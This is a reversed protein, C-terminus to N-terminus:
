LDELQKKYRQAEKFLELRKKAQIERRAKKETTAILKKLRNKQGELDIQEKLTSGEEVQISSVQSVLNEWILKLNLGTINIDIQNEKQWDNVLLKTKYIALRFEDEYALVILLKQGFLKFILIINSDLYNKTKM